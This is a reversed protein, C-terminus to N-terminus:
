DKFKMIQSCKGMVLLLLLLNMFITANHPLELHLKEYAKLTLPHRGELFHVLAINFKFALSEPCNKRGEEYFRLAKIFDQNM